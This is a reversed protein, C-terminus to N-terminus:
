RPDSPEKADLVEISRINAFEIQTQGLATNGFLIASARGGAYNMAWDHAMELGDVCDGDCMKVSLMHHWVDAGDERKTKHSKLTIKRIRTWELKSKASGLLVQIGSEEKSPGFGAFYNLYADKLQTVLGNVDTVRLKTTLGRHAGGVPAQKVEVEARPPLSVQTAGSLPPLDPVVWSRLADRLVDLFRRMNQERKQESEFLDVWHHTSIHLEIAKSARVDELRLPIITKRYNVAREIENAVHPSNNANASLLVIFVETKEIADVIAAGYNSGFPIDRPAMWCPMGFKEIDTVLREAAERDLSSHSVFILKRAPRQADPAGAESSSTM